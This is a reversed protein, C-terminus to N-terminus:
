IFIINRVIYDVNHKNVTKTIVVKPCFHITCAYYVKYISPRVPVLNTTYLISLKLSHFRENQNSKSKIKRVRSLNIAVITQTKVVYFLYCAFM